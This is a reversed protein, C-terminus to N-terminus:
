IVEFKYYNGGSVQSALLDWRGDFRTKADWEAGQCHPCVRQFHKMSSDFYVILTKM